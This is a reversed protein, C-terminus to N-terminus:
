KKVVDYLDTRRHSLVPMQVRIEDTADLDIDTFILAENEDAQSLIKGWPDCVISHGWSNFPIEPDRALATGVTFIQNFTAQARFLLEWHLPGSTMNFAAPALLFRIDDKLMIRTLEIFRVDYCVILGGKGFETEFVTVQDGPEFIDSEKFSIGGKVDVDYLHMKRHKAIQNGNRDFIYATNYVKGNDGTEPISGASVYIGNEKAAESFVQWTEGCEPEAYPVFLRTQYPCNSMEPFCVMDAGNDAAERVINRIKDKHVEKDHGVTIQAQAIRMMRSM